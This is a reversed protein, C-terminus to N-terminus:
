HTGAPVARGEHFRLLRDISRAASAMSYYVPVGAQACPVQLDQFIKQWHQRSHIYHMVLVTPRPVERHIDIVARAISDILGNFAPWPLWAGQGSPNHIVALDVFDKEAMMKKVVGYFVGTYGSMSFDLPNHLIMGAQNLVAEDFVDRLRPPVPPLVFGTSAWADTALVSAGGAAGFIGVRRGGPPPLMSFAVMTDVMDEARTVGVAGTQELLAAWLRGSSASGTRLPGPVAAAKLLIVPKVGALRKLARVLGPGDGVSEVCAAVADTDGDRAFYELLGSRAIDCAHGCSVAKSFRVGRHGAARLIHVSLERNQCIFGMRGTEAPLRSDFSMGARPCYVGLCDPGMVRLGTERTLDSIERELRAERRGEGGSFGATLVAVGGVGRVACERLLPIVEAAPTCCVVYDVPGPIQAMTRYVRRGSAEPARGNVLHIRGQFGSAILMELVLRGPEQWADGAIAVSRPRFIRDIEQQKTV